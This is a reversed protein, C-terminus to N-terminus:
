ADVGDDPADPSTVGSETITFDSHGVLVGPVLGHVGEQRAGVGTPTITQNFSGDQVWGSM